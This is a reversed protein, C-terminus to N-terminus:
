QVCTATTRLSCATVSTASTLRAFRSFPVVLMVYLGVACTCTFHVCRSYRNVCSAGCYQVCQIQPMVSKIKGAAGRCHQFRVASRLWTEPQKDTCACQFAANAPQHASTAALPPATTCAMHGGM